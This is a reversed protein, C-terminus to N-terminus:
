SSQRWSADAYAIRHLYSTNYQQFATELWERRREESFYQPGEGETRGGDEDGEVSDHMLSYIDLALRQQSIARPRLIITIETFVTISLITTWTHQSRYQDIEHVVLIVPQFAFGLSSITHERVLGLIRHNERRELDHNTILDHTHLVGYLLQFTTKDGFHCDRLYPGHPVYQTRVLYGFM